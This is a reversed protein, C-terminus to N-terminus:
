EQEKSPETGSGSEPEAPEQLDTEEPFIYLTEGPKILRMQNRAQEELNMLDNKEQLDKELQAKEEEYQNQQKHAVYLDHKLVVINGLSFCVMIILGALVAAVFLQRNRKRKRLAMKRKDLREGSVGSRPEANKVWGVPRNSRTTRASERREKKRQERAEKAEIERTREEHRRQRKRRAEDMDIVTSSDKFISSRRKKRGM